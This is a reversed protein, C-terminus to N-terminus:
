PMVVLYYRMFGLFEGCKTSGWLDMVANVVSWWRDRDQDVDTWAGGVWKRFIWRLIIMGDVDPDEM